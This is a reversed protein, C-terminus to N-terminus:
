REGLKRLELELEAIKFELDARGGSACIAMIIVGLIAGIFLGVLFEIM